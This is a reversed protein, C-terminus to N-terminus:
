IKYYVPLFFFRKKCLIKKMMDDYNSDSTKKYAGFWGGHLLAIAVVVTRSSLCNVWM